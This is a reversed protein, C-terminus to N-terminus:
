WKSQRKPKLKVPPQHEMLIFDGDVPEAEIQPVDLIDELVYSVRRALEKAQAATTVVQGINGDKDEILVYAKM